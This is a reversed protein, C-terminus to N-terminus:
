PGLATTRCSRAALLSPAPLRSPAHLGGARAQRDGRRRQQPPFTGAARERWTQVRTLALTHESLSFVYKKSPFVFGTDHLHSQLEWNSFLSALIRLTDTGPKSFSGAALLHWQEGRSTGAHTSRLTQSPPTGPCGAGGARWAFPPWYRQGRRCTPFPVQPDKGLTVLQALYLFLQM